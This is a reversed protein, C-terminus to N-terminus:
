VCDSRAIDPNLKFYRYVQKYYNIAEKKDGGFVEPFYFAVNGQSIKVLFNTEDIAKAKKIASFLSSIKFPAKLPSLAIEYAIFISHLANISAENSYKKLYPDFAKKAKQLWLSAEDQRKYDLLHGIYGYYNIFLREVDQLSSNHLTLANTESLIIDPWASFQRHAFSKYTISDLDDSGELPIFVFLLCVSLIKLCSTIKM